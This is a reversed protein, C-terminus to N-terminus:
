FLRDTANLGPTLLANHEFNLGFIGIGETEITGTAKFLAPRIFMISKIQCLSAQYCTMKTLHVYITMCTIGNAFSILWALYLNSVYPVRLPHYGYALWPLRLGVLAGALPAGVM